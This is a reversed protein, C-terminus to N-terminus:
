SRKDFFALAGFATLLQLAGIVLPNIRHFPSLLQSLPPSQWSSIHEWGQTTRRWGTDAARPSSPYSTATPTDFSRPSLLRAELGPLDALAAGIALVVTAILVLLLKDM